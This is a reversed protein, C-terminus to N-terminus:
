DFMKSARSNMYKYPYYFYNSITNYKPLVVKKRGACVANIIGQDHHFVVGNHAILFDIFKSQLNEKRWINLPILLIGANFYPEEKNIGIRERYYSSLLLDHAGAVLSDSLPADYFDRINSNFLFRLNNCIKRIINFYSLIFIIVHFCYIM